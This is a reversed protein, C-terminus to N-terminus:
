PLSNNKAKVQFFLASAMFALSIGLIFDELDQHIGFYNKAVLSFGLLLGGLIILTRTKSEM